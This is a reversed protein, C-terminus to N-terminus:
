RRSAKLLQITLSSWALSLEGSGKAEAFLLVDGQRRFDSVAARAM